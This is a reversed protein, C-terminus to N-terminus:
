PRCKTTGKVAVVGPHATVVIGIGDTDSEQVAWVQRTGDSLQRDRVIEYDQETLWRRAIDIVMLDDIYHGVTESRLRLKFSTQYGKIQGDSAVCGLEPILRESWGVDPSIANALTTVREVAYAQDKLLQERPFKSSDQADCAPMLMVLAALIFLTRCFL